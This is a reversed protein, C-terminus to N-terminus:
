VSVAGGVFLLGTRARTVSYYSFHCVPLLASMFYVFLVVFAYRIILVVFTLATLFKLRLDTSM